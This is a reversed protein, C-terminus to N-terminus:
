ADDDLPEYVLENDPASTALAPKGGRQSPKPAPRTRSARKALSASGGTEADPTDSASAPQDVQSPESGHSEDATAQEQGRSAMVFPRDFPQGDYAESEALGPPRPEHASELAAFPRSFPADVSDARPEHSRPEDAKAISELPPKEDAREDALNVIAVVSRSVPERGPAGPIPLNIDYISKLEPARPPKEAPTGADHADRWQSRRFERAEARTMTLMKGDRFTASRKTVSEILWELGGLLLLACGNVLTIQALILGIGGLLAEVAAAISENWEGGVRWVAFVAVLAAVFILAKGRAGFGSQRPLMTNAIVFALYTWLWLDATQLFAGLAAAMGDVSGDALLDLLADWRFVHVAIAWLALTGALLPALGVLTRTLRGADHALRVVNLRLEGIDQAAPFVLALEARARLAVAALWLSAEYLAIGPLFVIYYLITTIPLSNSLLWGVKFIHQHLWRESQRFM